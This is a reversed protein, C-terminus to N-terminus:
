RGAARTRIAAPRYVEIIGALPRESFVHVTGAQDVLRRPAETEVLIRVEPRCGQGHLASELELLFGGCAAPMWDAARMRYRYVHASRWAHVASAAILAQATALLARAAADPMRWYLPCLLILTGAHVLVRLYQPWVPHTSQMAPPSM